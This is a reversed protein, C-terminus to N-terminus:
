QYVVRVVRIEERPVTWTVAVNTTPNKWTITDVFQLRQRRALSGDNLFVMGENKAAYLVNEVAIPKLVDTLPTTEQRASPTQRRPTAWRRGGIWAIALLAAATMPLAVTWWGASWISHKRRMPGLEQGIKAVLEPSLSLPSRRRLEDELQQVDDNM